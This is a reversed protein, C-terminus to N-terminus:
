FDMEHSGIKAKNVFWADYDTVQVTGDNNLDAPGYHNLIAPNAAWIDFDSVQIINDQSIDGGYLAVTGDGMDKLQQSGFAQTESTSFDYVLENNANITVPNSSLVDIHNTARLALYYSESLLLDFALPSGDLGVISGDTLLFASKTAITTTARPPSPNPTGTRIEVLIWNVADAPIASATEAPANFPMASFPSELPIQGNGANSMSGGSQYPGELFATLSSAVNVPMEVAMAETLDLSISMGGDGSTSGNGNGAVAGAYLTVDGTGAGPATWQISYTTNGGQNAPASDHGVYNGGGYVQTNDGSAIWDGVFIDVSNWSLMSFGYKSAFPAGISVEIDYTEGPEYVDGDPNMFTIDAVMPSNTGHCGSCQSQGPAGTRNTPPTTSYGHGEKTESFFLVLTMLFLTSLFIRKKMANKQYPLIFHLL